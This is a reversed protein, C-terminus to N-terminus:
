SRERGERRSADRLREWLSKRSIGLAAAARGRHGGTKELAKRVYEREFREVAEGLPLVGPDAADSPTSPSGAAM